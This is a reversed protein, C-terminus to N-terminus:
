HSRGLFALLREGPGAGPPVRVPPAFRGPRDADSVLLPSLDLLEEALSPPIPRGQGCAAGVDWGHVSIELAGVAATIDATLSRDEVRVPGPSHANLWEGLMWCARERITGVPDTVPDGLAAVQPSLSVQRATIAEVMVLLSDNMHRLLAQLDWERCPTPRSMAAPTVLALSGLTYAMSRELLTVGGVLAAPTAM